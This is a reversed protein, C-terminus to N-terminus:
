KESFNIVGDFGEPPKEAYRDCITLYYAVVADGEASISSFASKAEDFRGATFLELAEEFGAIRAAEGDVLEGKSCLPQYVSIPETRGKVRVRGIRRAEIAAKAGEFATESVIIRTGFRKNLGELRSALNVTDGIATYNFRVNSGINGVICPGTHIGIRTKLEPFERLKEQIKLATLVAREAHDEMKLPAGWFAMVADGIYKDLTGKSDRIIETVETLYRNLDAVLETPTKTESISTFDAIDSFFLTIVEEEGGMKVSDPDQAIANVVVPSLYQGFAKKIAAKKRGETLYSKLIMMFSSTAMAGVPTVLPLYVDHWFILIAAAVYSGGLCGLWLAIHSLRSMQSLGLAAALSLLFIIGTQTWAGVPTIFNRRLLSDIITAHVEPGPYVQALPMPKLDYLGPAAVGIIVTRNELAAPDLDPKKGEEIQQNSILVKALPYAPYSDVGGIYNILLNGDEDLPIRVDDMILRNPHATMTIRKTGSIDSVLKLAIQPLAREELRVILPARRYIGDSDPATQANGFGTAATEVAAIPLSQLSREEVVYPPVSGEFPIRAKALVQAYAATDAAEHKSAFLVFYGPPGEAIGRGFSEDDAVGYVSDESFFLDFLVARAGGRKAFELAGDYLERPWPWSIGMEKMTTLSPEDVYFLAVNEGEGRSAHRTAIMRWDYTKLEWTDLFRLQESTSFIAAVVIGIAIAWIAQRKKHEKLKKGLNQRQVDLRKRQADFMKRTFETYRRM